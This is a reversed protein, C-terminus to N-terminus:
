TMPFPFRSRPTSATPAKPPPSGRFLKATAPITPGPGPDTDDLVLTAQDGGPANAVAVTFSPNGVVPPELVTIEIGSGDQEIVPVRASETYLAPRDFLPAQEALM